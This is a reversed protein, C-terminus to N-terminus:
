EHDWELAGVYQMPGALRAGDPSLSVHEAGESVTRVDFGSNRVDSEVAIPLAVPKPEAASLDM